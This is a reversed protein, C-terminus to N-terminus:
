ARSSRKRAADAAFQLAHSRGAPAFGGHKKKQTSNRESSSGRLLTGAATPQPKFAAARPEPTNIVDLNELLSWESAELLGGWFV